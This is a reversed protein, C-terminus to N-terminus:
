RAEPLEFGPAGACYAQQCRHLVVVTRGSKAALQDAYSRAEDLTAFRAPILADGASARPLYHTFLEGAFGTLTIDYTM